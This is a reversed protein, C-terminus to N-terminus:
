AEQQVRAAPGTGRRGSAPPSFRAPGHAVPRAPRPRRPRLPRHSGPLRHGPRRRFPRHRRLRPHRHRRLRRGRRGPGAARRGGGPHPRRPGPPRRQVAAPRRGLPHGAARRAAGDGRHRRRTRRRRPRRPGDDDRHLVAVDGSRGISCRVVHVPAQRPWTRGSSRPSRPRRSRGATSRPSWTAAASSPQGPLGRRPLRAHRDGHVRVPDGRAPGGGRGRRGQLLRAAPAAPVALIM